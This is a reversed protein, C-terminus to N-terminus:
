LEITSHVPLDPLVPFNPLDGPTMIVRRSFDASKKGKCLGSRQKYKGKLEARKESSRNEAQDKKVQNKKM